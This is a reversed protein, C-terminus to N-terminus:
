SVVFMGMACRKREGGSVGKFQSGGILTETANELHLTSIVRNVLELQEEKTKNPLRLVASMTIAEKVTMTSLIVDDQFVFGSYEKMQDAFLETGNLYM